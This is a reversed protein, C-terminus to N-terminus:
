TWLGLITQFSTHLTSLEKEFHATLTSFKTCFYAYLTSFATWFHGFSTRLLQPLGSPHIQNGMLMLHQLQNLVIHTLTAFDMIFKSPFLPFIIDM